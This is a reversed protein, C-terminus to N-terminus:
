GKPHNAMDSLGAEGAKPEGRAGAITATIQTPMTITAAVPARISKVAGPPAGAADGTEGLEDVTDAVSSGSASVATSLTAGAPSSRVTAAARDARRIVTGVTAGGFAGTGTACGGCSSGVVAADVLFGRRCRSWVSM